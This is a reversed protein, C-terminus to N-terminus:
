GGGYDIIKLKQNNDIFSWFLASLLSFNYYVKDFLKGNREYPYIGDKVKTVAEFVTQIIKDNDYGTTLRLTEDWNLYKGKFGYTKIFVKKILKIILPPLLLKLYKIIIKKIKVM